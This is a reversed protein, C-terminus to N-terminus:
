GVVLEHQRNRGFKAPIPCAHTHRGDLALFHTLQHDVGPCHDDRFAHRSGALSMGNM